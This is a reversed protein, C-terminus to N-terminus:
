GAAALRPNPQTTSSKAFGLEVWDEGLPQPNFSSIALVLLWVKCVFHRQGVLRHRLPPRQAACPIHRIRMEQNRGFENNKQLKHPTWHTWGNLFRLMKDFSTSGNRACSKIPYCSLDFRWRHIFEQYRRHKEEM